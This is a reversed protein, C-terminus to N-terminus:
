SAHGAAAPCAQKVSAADMLSRDFLDAIQGWIRGNEIMAKGKVQAWVCGKSPAAAKQDCRSLICVFPTALGQARHISNAHPTAVCLHPSIGSRVCTAPWMPVANWLAGPRTPACIGAADVAARADLRLQRTSRCGASGGKGGSLTCVAGNLVHQSTVAPNAVPIHWLADVQSM